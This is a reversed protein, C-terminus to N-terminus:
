TEPVAGRETRVAALAQHYRALDVKWFEPRPNDIDQKALRLEREAETEPKQRM